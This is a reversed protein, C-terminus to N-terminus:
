TWKEVFKDMTYAIKPVLTLSAKKSESDVTFEVATIVFEVGNGAALRNDKVVVITNEKWRDGSDDYFGDVPLQFGISEAISKNKRWLAADRINDRNNDTQINHICVRSVGSDKESHSKNKSPGKGFATYTSARARGNYSIELQEFLQQGEDIVAVPVTALKASTIVLDGDQNSTILVGLQSALDLICEGVAQQKEIVVKKFTHTNFEKDIVSIGFPEVLTEIAKKLTVNKQKYPPRSCSDVLDATSTFGEYSITYSDSTITRTQNYLKGTLVLEDDIYVEAKQYKYPTFVLEDENADVVFSFGDALTDMTRVVRASLYRTEKGDVIITLSETSKKIGIDKRLKDKTEIEGPIQIVEGPFIMHPNGSRLSHRNARWIQRWKRGNGYAQYAIGSLTDGKVITYSKGPTAKPM